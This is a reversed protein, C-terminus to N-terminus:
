LFSVPFFRRSYQASALANRCNRLLTAGEPGRVSAPQGHGGRRAEEAGGGEEDRGLGPQGENDRRAQCGGCQRAQVTILIRMLLTSPSRKADESGAAASKDSAFTLKRLLMSGFGSSTEQSRTLSLRASCTSHSLLVASVCYRRNRRPPGQRARSECCLCKTDAFPM